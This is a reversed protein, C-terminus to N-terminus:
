NDRVCRVSHGNNNSNTCSSVNSSVCNMSWYFAGETGYESSSWWYGYNIGASISAFTGNVRRLGGPLATFGSSNDAGRNSLWHNTGTEKLKGGAIDEGGLYTTLTTWEANTPVHWGTPCLNGNNVTYWNYLAGYTKKYSVDNDYWCYAPDLSAWETDDTVLPIATGDRYKTVRLNEAMWTQTGITITKYMNGDIDIVSGYTLNPNFSDDKKCSNTFVLVFGMVILPYIWIRIKNKMIVRKYIGSHSRFTVMIEQKLALM